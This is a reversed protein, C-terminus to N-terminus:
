KGFRYREIWQEAEKYADDITEVNYVTFCDVPKKNTNSMQYVNFNSNGNWEIIFRQAPEFWFNVM